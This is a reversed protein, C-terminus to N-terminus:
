HGDPCKKNQLMKADRGMNADETGGEEVATSMASYASDLLSVACKGKSLAANLMEISVADGKDSMVIEVTTDMGTWELISQLNSVDFTDIPCIAINKNLSHAIKGMLSLSFTTKGLGTEKSWVHMGCRLPLGLVVERKLNIGCVALDLTLNGTEVRTRAPYTGAFSIPM